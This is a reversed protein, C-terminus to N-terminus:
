FPYGIGFHLALSQTNLWQSPGIWRQGVDRGPDYAKVGLDLRAVILDLNIRVGFGWDAAITRLLDLKESKLNWVNGAEAFLAGEIKWFMKFRFEVDAELKFDGTQSPITFIQSQMSDGPGLTRAQWGRMSSAGGCYFQEEFPLYSSNGYAHGAGIDLRTAISNQADRGVRFTRGLTLQGRIYQTYPAGLIMAQGDKGTPMFRRFLSLFNGSLSLSLREYSYSEKPVLETSTTHYIFGNMGADFHSSYTDHMFPNHSLNEEFEPDVRSLRVFTASLPFFQCFINNHFRWNYGYAVNAVNRTFEPRSQFNYSAMIDTRPINSGAFVSTPLGLFRPLSLTANVGLETSNVKDSPRYQFNGNFGINLSEGGHFINKHYWSIQPSIGILASSSYSLECNLKSGQRNSEALRINCDVLASDSQSLEMTVGNFIRLSSFRNYTTNVIDDSFTMGPKILNYGKLINERFPVSESHSISVNGFSFRSIPGDEEPSENRTYGKIAYEMKVFGPTLTDVSFFYNNKSFDFYGKNRLLEASRQSEQELIEESLFQGTKLLQGLTDAFFDAEFDPNGGPLKYVISDIRYRRGLTVIYDVTALGKGTIVQADVNSDYYGLYELRKRINQKSSEVLSPNFVVPARGLKEFLRDFLGGKGSSLNYVLLGPSWPDAQQRVYQSLQSVKFDPDNVISIRNEKLRYQGEQLVRTTSCSALILILLTIIPSKHKM